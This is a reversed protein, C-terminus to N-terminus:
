RTRRREVPRGRREPTLVPEGTVLEAIGAAVWNHACEAPVDLEDGTSVWLNLASYSTLMRVRPM